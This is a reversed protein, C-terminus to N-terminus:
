SLLTKSKQVGKVYTKNKEESGEIKHKKGGGGIAEGREKKGNGVPVDKEGNGAGRWL